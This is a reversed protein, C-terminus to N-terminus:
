NTLYQPSLGLCPATASPPSSAISPDSCCALQRFNLVM